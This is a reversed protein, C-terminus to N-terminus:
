RFGLYLRRHKPSSPEKEDNCTSSSQQSSHWESCRMILSRHVLYGVYCREAFLEVFEVLLHGVRIKIGVLAAGGFDGSLLHAETRKDFFELSVM